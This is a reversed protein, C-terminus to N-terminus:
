SGAKAKAAEAIVAEVRHPPMPEHGLYDSTFSGTGRSMSRLDTAYNTVEFQPVEAKVMTRGGAVSETGTLRGRRSSLDSMIAGVHEDDVLISMTVVPELLNIVGAKKAAERLAVAGAMQFAADSSDVSHAKGDFLTVRIDVVPYGALVGKAMQAKVGKEVSPIFQRPVAGGVVKDVFEFGAGPALPEVEVQCKAYQGHGGSQKVHRGEATLKQNFTERLAVRYPIREVKVGFKDALRQFTVDVHADGMTWLVTQGTEPNHEVRLTPDESVLRNLGTGLKDEDSSNAAKIAVPLMAEPSMWPQAVLPKNPDSVTDGTEASTLRAVAALDGAVAYPVPRQKAGLPSTLTGVRENGAHGGLGVAADASSGHGEVHVTSEARLTGSFVRVISIRGVYPDQTTKIVEAVLPGKPDCSVAVEKGAPDLVEPLEAVVPSPFGDRILYLLEDTGIGGAAAMPMIPFFSAAAMAKQLDAKLAEGDLEDGELYAEMLDEDGSETILAEIFAERNREMKGVEDGEAARVQRQGTTFDVVKGTLIDLLKGVEAESKYIPVMMPLVSEGFSQRCAEVVEDYDARPNDLKTILIARPMRERALEDWLLRTAGSIGDVASIVFVAADAGRIAARLDGLYDAYGPADIVNIKVGGFSLPALALGVSRNTKHEIDEYDTVTTGEAVSGARGIEGTAALLGEVVTTKGTGSSGVFVVNRIKGPDGVPTASKSQASTSNDVAM